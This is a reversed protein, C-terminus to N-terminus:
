EVRLESHGDYKPFPEPSVLLARWKRKCCRVRRVRGEINTITWFPCPPYVLKTAKRM